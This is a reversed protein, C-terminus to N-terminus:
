NKKRFLELYKAACKEISFNKSYQINNKSMSNYSDINNLIDLVKKVFTETDNVEFLFGNDPKIINKVGGVDSSIVICGAAMGEILSLPNAEYRSGLAIIKTDVLINGPNPMTGMFEIFDADLDNALKKMSNFLEGNGILAVKFDRKSKQILSFANILFEYNKPYSFRGIVTIDYSRRELVKTPRPIRTLDVGNEVFPVNSAKFYKKTEAALSETIAVPIYNKKKFIHKYLVRVLRNSCEEQPILHLTHYVIPRDKKKLKRIALFAPILANNETHVVDPKFEKIIKRIEKANKLDFHKQKDLIVYDINKENLRDIFMQTYEKYLIIVKLECIDNMCCSFNVAFTEGGGIPLLNSIVELVKM